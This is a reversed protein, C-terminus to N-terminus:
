IGTKREVRKEGERHTHTCKARRIYKASGKKIGKLVRRQINEEQRQKLIQRPASQTAKPREREEEQTLKILCVCACSAPSLFFHSHCERFSIIMMEPSSGLLFLLFFYYSFVSVSGFHTHIQTSPVICCFLNEERGM